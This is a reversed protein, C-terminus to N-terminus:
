EKGYRGTRGRERLQREFDRKARAAKSTEDESDFILTSPRDAVKAAARQLNEAAARAAIVAARIDTQNERLMRTTQAIADGAQDGVTGLQADLKGLTTDLWRYM